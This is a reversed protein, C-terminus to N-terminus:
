LGFEAFRRHKIQYLSVDKSEQLTYKTSDFFSSFVKIVLKLFQSLLYCDECYVDFFNIYTKLIIAENLFIKKNNNKNLM